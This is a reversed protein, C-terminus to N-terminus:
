RRVLPWYVRLMTRAPCQKVEFSYTRNADDRMLEAPRERGTTLDTVSAFPRQREIEIPGLKVVLRALESRYRNLLGVWEFAAHTQGYQKEAEALSSCVGGLLTFSLSGEHPLELHAPAKRDAAPEGNIRVKIIRSGPLGEVMEHYAGTSGATPRVTRVVDIDFRELSHSSPQLALTVENLAVKAAFPRVDAAHSDLDWRHGIRRAAILHRKNVRPSKEWVKDDVEPPFAVSEAKIGGTDLELVNFSPWLRPALAHSSSQWQESTGCSGAALLVVDGEGPGIGKLLRATPYHKHGHLVVVARGLSHLTSLATGAGLATMTLEERDANAVVSPLLYKVLLGVLAPRGEVDIEGVDTIPTPVLHHHVLFLLPKDDRLDFMREAVELLDEQRLMGGASFLGRPLFTSDYVVVHANLGPVEVYHALFPPTCGLVTLNPRSKAREALLNFLTNDLPSLVGAGRRDHNGPLIITKVKSGLHADLQDLLALFREVADPGLRSSDFVDGTLVLLDAQIGRMAQALAIFLPGQLKDSAGLHLDSLHVIRTM